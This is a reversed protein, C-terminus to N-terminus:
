RLSRLGAFKEDDRRRGRLLLVVAAVLAVLSVPSAVVALAALILSAGDKYVALAARADADLRQGARAFFNRTTASALAACPLGAVIGVWAPHGEDAMSAGFLLAGCGIAVGGLAAALPGSDFAGPHGREYGVTAATAVLVGVMWYPDELFVFGTGGLELGADNYALVGFLLVPLFPRVGCALALGIGQCIVLFLDM